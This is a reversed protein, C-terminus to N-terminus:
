YFFYYDINLPSYLITHFWSSMNYGSLSYPNWTVEQGSKLNLVARNRWIWFQSVTDTLIPNKVPPRVAYGYTHNYWPYYMGIPIDLAIPAKQATFYPYFLLFTLLVFLVIKSM